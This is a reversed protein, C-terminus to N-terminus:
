PPRDAEVEPLAPILPMVHTVVGTSNGTRKKKKFFQKNIKHIHCV